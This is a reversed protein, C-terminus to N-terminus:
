QLRDGVTIGYKIADGAPVELVHKAKASPTYIPCSGAVCAPAKNVIYVVRKDANIWIIDIPFKMNKMWFPYIDEQEFVFFMGTMPALGERFMLGRQRLAGTDVIDVAYCAQRVCVKPSSLRCGTLLFVSSFLLGMLALVTAM